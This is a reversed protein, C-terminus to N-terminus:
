TCVKLPLLEKPSALRYPCSERLQRDEAYLPPTKMYLEAADGNDSLQRHYADELDAVPALAVCLAPLFPLPSLSPFHSPLATDLAGRCCPWM